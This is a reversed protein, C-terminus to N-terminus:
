MLMSFIVISLGIVVLRKLMTVYDVQSLLQNHCHTVSPVDVNNYLPKVTRAINRPIYSMGLNARMINTSQHQSM